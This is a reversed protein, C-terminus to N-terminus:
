LSFACHVLTLNNISVYTKLDRGEISTGSIWDDKEEQHLLSIGKCMSNERTFQEQLLILEVWNGSNWKHRSNRLFPWDLPQSNLERKCTLFCSLVIFLTIFIVFLSSLYVSSFIIPCYWLSSALNIMFYYKM